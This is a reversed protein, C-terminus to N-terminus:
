LFFHLHFLLFRYCYLSNFLSPQYERIDVKKRKLSLAKKKNPIQKHRYLANNHLEYAGIDFPKNKAVILHEVEKLAQPVYNEIEDIDKGTLFTHTQAVSQRWLATLEELLGTNRDIVDVIKM